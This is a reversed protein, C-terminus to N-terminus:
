THKYPYYIFITGGSPIDVSTKKEKISVLILHSLEDNEKFHKLADFDINLDCDQFIVSVCKNGRDENYRNGLAQIIREARKKIFTFLSNLMATGSIVDSIMKVIEIILKIDDPGEGTGAWLYVFKLKEFDEELAVNINDIDAGKFYTSNLQITYSEVENEFDM